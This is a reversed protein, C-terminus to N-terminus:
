SDIPLERVQRAVNQRDDKLRWDDAQYDPRAGQSSREGLSQSLRRGPSIKLRFTSGRPKGSAALVFLGGRLGFLEKQDNGAPYSRNARQLEHIEPAVNGGSMSGVPLGLLMWGAVDNSRTQSQQSSAATLAGQLRAQEEGLQRCTWSEYAVSSTYSPRVEEPAQACSALTIGSPIVGIAQRFKM